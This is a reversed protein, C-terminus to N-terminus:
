TTLVGSELHRLFTEDDRKRRRPIPFFKARKILKDDITFGKHIRKKGSFEM